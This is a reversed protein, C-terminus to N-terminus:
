TSSGHELKRELWAAVISLSVTVILYLAAVTLWVEFSMFTDTAISRGENTLDFIAIVSVISSHKVVNVLVGTLPPVMLPLAQPLVIFRYTDIRGLPLSAAAEWQGRSVALIAGRIIEAAFAGEYLALTLVGAWWRDIGIVKAVIFYFILIQLLIPTNRIVEIYLRAIFVSVPRKSLNLLATALGLPLAILMAFFSIELTVRLGKLLLGPILQGDVNRVIYPMMRTWQWNYDMASAGRLVLLILLGLFIAFALLDPWKAAQLRLPATPAAIEAGAEHSALRSKSSMDNKIPGSVM